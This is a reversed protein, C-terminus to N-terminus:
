SYHYCLYKQNCILIESDCILNASTTFCSEDDLFACDVAETRRAAAEAVASFEEPSVPAQNM